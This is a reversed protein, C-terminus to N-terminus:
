GLYDFCVHRDPGAHNCQAILLVAQRLLANGGVPAPAPSERQRGLGLGLGLQLGQGATTLTMHSGRRLSQRFLFYDM